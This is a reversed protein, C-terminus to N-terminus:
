PVDGCTRGDRQLWAGNNVIAPNVAITFVAFRIHHLELACVPRVGARQKRKLRSCTPNEGSTHLFRRHRFLYCYRNLEVESSAGPNKPATGSCTHALKPFRGIEMAERM